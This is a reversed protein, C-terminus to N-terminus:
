RKPFQQRALASLAILGSGLLLLTSPEPVETPPVTGGSGAAFGTFGFGSSISCPNACSGVHAVALANNANATLIDSETAWTGSINTIDFTLNDVSHSFSDTNDIVLNFSGFGNVNSTGPPNTLSFPGPTFGSISTTGIINSVSFSSANVNLGASSGDTLRYLNGGNTLSQFSVSATTSTNLTVTVEVYPGSCCGSIAGNGTDLTILLAYASRAGHTLLGVIIIVLMILTLRKRNLPEM